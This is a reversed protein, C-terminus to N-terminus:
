TSVGIAPDSVRRRSRNMPLCSIHFNLATPHTNEASPPNGTLRPLASRSAIRRASATSSAPSPSTSNGSPSRLSPGPTWGIKSPATYMATLAPTGITGTPMPPDARTIGRCARNTYGRLTCTSIPGAIGGGRAGIPPRRGRDATLSWEARRCASSCRRNSRAWIRAPVGFV